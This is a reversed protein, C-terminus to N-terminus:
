DKKEEQFARAATLVAIARTLVDTHTDALTPNLEVLARANDEYGLVFGLRQRLQSSHAPRSKGIASYEAIQEKRDDRVKSLLELAAADSGADKVKKILENIEGVSLGADQALKLLAVFPEDNLGSQGLRRLQSSPVSGNVHVGIREARERAKQESLVGNVFGASVGLLAAIRSADYDTGTGVALVASMQEARDIGRGNRVNFGAGLLHMRRLVADNAGEYERDLIFAPLTPYKNRRAAEARTNGDLLYGDKTVVIPPFADNRAMAAAYKTVEAPPAYHAIQRVQVRKSVDPTPYRQDLAWDFGLRKILNATQRAEDPLKNHDTIHTAV